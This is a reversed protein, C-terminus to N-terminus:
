GRKVVDAYSGQEIIRGAQLRYIRGCGAVTSLRHAIIIVTLDAGLREVASMVEAETDDDLASTAEDLVLVTARKYLARAIGIRQRQGGSLRVGREGVSTALGRPLADVFEALGAQEAARRIRHEDREGPPVGFAINAAMSDDSLFIAQPVHAIQAKWNGIQDHDIVTGDVLLAGSTPPLLGMVIDVLTSKGSGTKGIFGVREGKAITLNLDTLANSTDAYRFTVDRLEISTEFRRVDSPLVPKIREIPADLLEVLDGLNGKYLSYQAWGQYIMQIMPLMRQAGLALAGLVPIAGLVGGPQVSFWAAMAAVLVIAVGEVLLRPATSLFTAVGVLYRYNDEIHRLRAVFVGQSQDLNIDRIGGLTEQMTQVRDTYVGSLGDAMERSRRRTYFSIIGYTIGVTGSAVLAAGPDLVFLFFTMSLAMVASSLAQIVPTVISGFVVAIKQQSSILVSSNQQLYWSYPRRLGREFVELTIDQQIGYIFKQTVWMLAMRVVTAVIAATMLFLAAAIVPGVQLADSLATFASGIMPLSGVSEPRAAIALVPLVAGITCLEAVASALTLILTALLQIRRFPDAADMLRAMGKLFGVPKARDATFDDTTV